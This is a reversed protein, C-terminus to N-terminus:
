CRLATFRRRPPHFQAPVPAVRIVSDSSESYLHSGYREHNRKLQAQKWAVLAERAPSPEDKVQLLATHIASFLDRRLPAPLGQLHDKAQNIEVFHQTAMALAKLKTALDRREDLIPAQFAEWAQKRQSEVYQREAVEIHNLEEGSAAGNELIWERFKKLCDYEVEFAMRERSKYREHSGSTSHGQPQTLETVHVIAPIHDRRANEASKQFAELLAPYDWGRM